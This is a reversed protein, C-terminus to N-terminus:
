VSRRRMRLTSKCGMNMRSFADAVFNPNGQGYHVNRDYNRLLELWRQQCLNLERLTFVYMLSKNDTFVEVHVGYLYHRWLKLAVVAAEFELDQTPYNNEHVKLQRSAYYIM